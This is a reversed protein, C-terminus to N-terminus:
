RPASDPPAASDPRPPVVPRTVDPVPSPVPMPPPPPANAGTGKELPPSPVTPPRPPIGASPPIPPVGASPPLAAPPAAADVRRVIERWTEAMLKGDGQHARVWATLQAPTVREKRLARARASDVGAATDPISRLAVNARIFRERPIIDRPRDTGCAALLLAALAAAVPHKM